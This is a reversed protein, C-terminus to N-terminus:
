MEGGDPKGPHPGLEGDGVDIVVGQLGPPRLVGPVMQKQLRRRGFVPSEEGLGSVSDAMLHVQLPERDRTLGEEARIGMGGGGPPDTGQGDPSPPHVYGQGHGPFGEVELHRFHHPHLEFPTKLREDGGLVHDQLKEPAEGDLAPHALNELVSTLAHLREGHGLPGGDAVHPGLETGGGGDEGCVLLSVPEELGLPPLLIEPGKLGVRIRFVLFHDLEVERLDLRQDGAGVGRIVYLRDPLKRAEFYM